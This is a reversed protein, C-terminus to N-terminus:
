LAQPSLQLLGIYMLHSHLKLRDPWQHGHLMHEHHLKLFSITSPAIVHITNPDGGLKLIVNEFIVVSCIQVGQGAIILLYAKIRMVIGSFVM